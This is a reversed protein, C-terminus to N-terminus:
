KTFISKFFQKASDKTFYRNAYEVLQASQEELANTDNYLKIIANAFETESDCATLIKDIDQMGELGFSTSVLPMGKSMAEVTKGKLGAGYRLPMIAMKVGQYLENLQTDTVFGKIIVNDSSLQAVSSPVNSGVVLLQLDPIQKLVIPLVREVFWIVADVNPTHVYGGVFLLNKRETFNTIPKAIEPYFFAPMVEIQKRKFDLSIIDKEKSTPTLIVDSKKFLKYETKKWEASIKLKKKDNTVEYEKLERVFHLDHGYYYIKAKTKKKLLDIYKISIHPRNLLIFDIYQQNDFLWEKWHNAYHTGYLVEIGKQQLITTYPESRYFNDGLFKVNFGLEALAELYQFTTRSGADKDFEPVYHDIVLITKKRKSRDRALFFDQNKSFHDENLEKNWKQVFKIANDIQYKKTGSSTNTGHTLGEYHVVVSLPQYVVKYGLNRIAFALDSDDCYAPVYREDLGKLKDWIDKRVLNSAGSIYDAEKVYNYEPLEPDGLRGYNWGSGDKWIINGAEQLSGDPYVLKSGVLGISTDKEMLEVMSSLWSPTVTTDNNLTLVYKGKAHSAANNINRIYGLNEPNRLYLINSFYKELNITEDSSVNDGVIIEYPVNNTHQYISILCNRTFEWNNYAPIIISVVPQNFVPFVIPFEINEPVEPLINYKHALTVASVTVSPNHARAKKLFKLQSKIKKFSKYAQSDERFYKGKLKYYVSLLKYGDSSYIDNLRETLEKKEANLKHVEGSRSDLEKKLNNIEIIRDTLSKEAAQLKDAIETVALQLSKLEEIKSDLENNKSHMIENKLTLEKTKLELESSSKKGWAGLEEVEQQLHHIRDVLQFYTKESEPIIGSLSINLQEINDSCLAILYKPEFQYQKDNLCYIAASQEEEYSNKNLILSTVELGQGFINVHKFGAKLLEVFEEKYMERVHFENHQNYRDTYNKKDPTSIIMLGGQKLVRKAEVLFKKQKEENIHEITEFSVIVDVSEAPLPINEVSGMSFTLNKKDAYVKSAHKIVEPNIDVAYVHASIKALMNSGYGEGCAIDLVVKEKVLPLVSLYRHKHELQLEHSGPSGETHEPPIFYEGTFKM